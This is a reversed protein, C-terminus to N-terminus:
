VTRPRDASSTEVAQEAPAGVRWLAVIALAAVILAPVGLRVVNRRRPMERRYPADPFWSGGSICFNYGSLIVAHSRAVRNLRFAVQDIRAEQGRDEVLDDLEPAGVFDQMEVDAAGVVVRGADLHPDRRRLAGTQVIQQLLERREATM